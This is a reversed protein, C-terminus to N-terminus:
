GLNVDTVKENDYCSRVQKLFQAKSSKVAPVAIDLEIWTDASKIDIWRRGNKYHFHFFPKSGLYFTGVGKSRIGPWAAIIPFLEELDKLLDPSCRAM